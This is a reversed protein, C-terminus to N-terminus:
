YVLWGRDTMKIRLPKGSWPDIVAEAPLGLEELTTVEHGKENRFKQLANLIRLCRAMTLRGADAWFAARMAEGILSKEKLGALQYQQKERAYTEDWEARVT